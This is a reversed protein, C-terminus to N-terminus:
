IVVREKGFVAICTRMLQYVAGVAASVIAQRDQVYQVTQTDINEPRMNAVIGEVFTARGAAAGYIRTVTQESFVCLRGAKQDAGGCGQGNVTAEAIATMHAELGFVSDVAHPQQFAADNKVFVVPADASWLTSTDSVNMLLYLGGRNCRDPYSSVMDLVAMSSLVRLWKSEDDSAKRALTGGNRWLELWVPPLKAVPAVGLDNVLLLSIMGSVQGHSSADFGAPLGSPMDALSLLETVAISRMACAPVHKQM